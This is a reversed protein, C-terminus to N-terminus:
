PYITGIVILDLDSPDTNWGVEWSPDTVLRRDIPYMMISDKDAHETGVMGMATPRLLVQIQIESRSWGQTRGYLAYVNPVHWPIVERPHQHEHGLGLFHFVEHVIVRKQEKAPEDGTLAINMTKQHQAIKLNDKGVYSWHGGDLDFGVRCESPGSTVILFRLGVWEDIMKLHAAFMDRQKKTGNIFRVRLTTGNDWMDRRYGWAAKKLLSPAPFGVLQLTSPNQRQDAEVVGPPLMACCSKRSIEFIEDESLPPMDPLLLNQM